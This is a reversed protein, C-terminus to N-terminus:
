PAVNKAQTQKLAKYPLLQKDHPKLLLIVYNSFVIHLVLVHM